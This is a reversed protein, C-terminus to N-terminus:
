QGDHCPNVGCLPLHYRLMMVVVVHNLDVIRPNPCSIRGPVVCHGSSCVSLGFIPVSNEIGSM